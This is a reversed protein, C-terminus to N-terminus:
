HATATEMQMYRIPLVQTTKVSGRAVHWSSNHSDARARQREAINYGVNM